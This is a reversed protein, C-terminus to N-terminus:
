KWLPQTSKWAEQEVPVQKWPPPTYTGQTEPEVKPEPVPEKRPTETSSLESIGILAGVVLIVVLFIELADLIGFKHM